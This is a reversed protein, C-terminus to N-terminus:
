SRPSPEIPNVHSGEAVTDGLNIAVKQGEDLGTILRVIQGDDTGVKVEQFHVTKEPTVVAVLTKDGRLVLAESQIEIYRPTHIKLSVEIFSGPVLEGKSNDMDLETLMMRTRVDLEGSVRTVQAPYVKGLREPVRVEALDGVHVFAADVQALYVYARLRDLQSVTVVPLAGNQANTANQVLAGPDAFRATVTGDFPARLVEYSLQTEQVKRNAESVEAQAVALEADQVSVVGPVVLNKARRATAWKNNADAVAAQYQRHIEPAEIIAMIQDAQVHDGKDVRIDRLYGSVKAYLTTSAFPRAEGQITVTRDGPSAHATQVLITPGAKLVQEREAEEDALSSRHHLTLFALGGALLLLVLTAALIFRIPTPGSSKGGSKTM